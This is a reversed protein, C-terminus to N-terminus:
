NHLNRRLRAMQERRRLRLPVIDPLFYKGFITLKPMLSVEEEVRAALNRRRLRLSVTDHSCHQGEEEVKSSVIVHSCYESFMLLRQIESIKEEGKGEAETLEPMSVEDDLRAAKDKVEVCGKLFLTMLNYNQSFTVM